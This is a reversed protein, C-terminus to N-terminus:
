RFRIPERPGSALSQTSLLLETVPFRIGTLSGGPALNVITPEIVSPLQGCLEGSDCIVGDGDRDTGAYILYSGPPVGTLEFRYDNAADAEVNSVSDFTGPEVVLVFVTEMPNVDGAGVSMSVDVEAEGGEGATVTVAGRYRGDPLGSRDVTILLRDATTSAAGGGLEAALWDAGDFERDSVGTIMLTGGGTNTIAVTAMTRENGLDVSTNSLALRPMLPPPDQGAGSMAANVAAAANVLGAGFQEDPGSAGLDTATSTLINRVDAPTLNPDVSLVLAAVGAVHPSAMSTGNNFVLVFDIQGLRDDGQTSLVGDPNNDGNLDQSVDGGPAVLDASPGFNSYEARSLNLDVAGVGIVEDFAAPFDPLSSGDNGAAAVVVVGAAVAAQVASLICQSPPNGAGSSLSMNIVSARRGPLQGSSNSLGAAYRIAEAIDFSSGAGDRGLARLPLIPCNWTVGAVGIANDTVAGVTGAVHTGHFSSGAPSNPADGPDDADADIGDGDLATFPDSIFDVGDILRPGLEVHQFLAGTDIVAVIVDSSGVTVDWAEPLHIAPYHWQLNYFEDNPTRRARLVYDPEAIRVGPCCSLALAAGYTRLRRTVPDAEADLTIAVRCLGSDSALLMSASRSQLVANRQAVDLASDFAVLVEGERFEGRPPQYGRRSDGANSARASEPARADRGGLRQARGAGGAAALVQDLPTRSLRGANMVRAEDPLETTLEMRYPGTAAGDLSPAVVIDYAGDVLWTGETGSADGSFCAAFIPEDGGMSCNTQNFDIIGVDFAAQGESEADELTLRFRVRLMENGTFRFADVDNDPPGTGVTGLIVYSQGPRAIAMFQPHDAIDNPEQELITPMLPDALVQLQGSIRGPAQTNANAAGGSRRQSSTGGACSTLVGALLLAVISRILSGCRRIM